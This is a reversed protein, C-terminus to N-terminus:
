FNGVKFNFTVGAWFLYYHLHIKTIKMKRTYRKITNKFGRRTYIGQYNKPYVNNQGSDPFSNPSHYLIRHCLQAYYWQTERTQIDFFIFLYIFAFNQIFNCVHTFTKVHGKQFFSRNDSGSRLGKSCRIHYEKYRYNVPFRKRSTPTKSYNLDGGGRGVELSVATM